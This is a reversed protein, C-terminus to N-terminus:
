TLQSRRSAMGPSHRWYEQTRATAEHGDVSHAPATFFSEPRLRHYTPLDILFIRQCHPDSCECLMPVRSTFRFREAKRALRQNSHRADEPRSVYARDQQASM